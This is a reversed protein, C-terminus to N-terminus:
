AGMDKKSVVGSPLIIFLNELSRSTMSELMGMYRRPHSKLIAGRTIVMTITVYEEGIKRASRIGRPIM